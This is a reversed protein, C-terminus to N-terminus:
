QRVTPQRQREARRQTETSEEGAYTRCTRREYRHHTCRGRLYLRHILRHIGWTSRM